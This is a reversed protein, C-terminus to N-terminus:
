SYNQMVTCYTIRLETKIYKIYQRYSQQKLEVRNWVEHLGNMDYTHALVSALQELFICLIIWQMVHFVLFISHWCQILKCYTQM